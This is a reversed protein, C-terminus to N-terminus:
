SETIRHFRSKTADESTDQRQGTDAYQMMEPLKRKDVHIRLLTEQLVYMPIQRPKAGALLLSGRPQEIM